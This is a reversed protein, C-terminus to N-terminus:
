QCRRRKLMDTFAELRTVFGAEATHEDLSLQMSPIALRQAQQRILEGTIADPGCGFCTLFIIGNLQAGSMMAMAAGYTTHSNSWFLKKGLQAAARDVTKKGVTEATCVSVGLRELKGLIDLSIQRDYVIYPHGVLAVKPRADRVETLAPPTGSRWAKIWAYLSASLNRGLVRGVAIVAQYLQWSKQRMDVNIDIIPPLQGANNKLVDPIGIIKPCTFQGQNISIIRPLFLYDVKDKLYCAHGFLVKSPLCMEDLISGCDLTQRSTEGSLVVEAGLEQLFRELVIGYQFYMLGQPLGVRISM